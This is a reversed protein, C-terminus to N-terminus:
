YVGKYNDNDEDERKKKEERMMHVICWVCATTFVTVVWVRAATMTSLPFAVMLIIEGVLWIAFAIATVIAVYKIHEKTM